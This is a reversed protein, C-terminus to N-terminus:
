HIRNIFWVYPRDQFHNIRPLSALWKLYNFAAELITNPRDEVLDDISSQQKMPFQAQFFFSLFYDSHSRSCLSGVDNVKMFIPKKSSTHSYNIKLAGNEDCVLM